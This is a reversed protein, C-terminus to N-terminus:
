DSIFKPVSSKLFKKAAKEIQCIRMRTVSFIDGVQQLTYPGEKAALIVCNSHEGGMNQWYRCETNKCIQACEEHAKFCTTGKIPTENARINLLSPEKKMHSKENERCGKIHINYCSCVVIKLSFIKFFLLFRKTKSVLTSRYSLDEM